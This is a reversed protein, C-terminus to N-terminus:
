IVVATNEEDSSGESDDGEEKGEQGFAADIELSLEKILKKNGEIQKAQYIAKLVCKGVNELDGISFHQGQLKGRNSGAFSAELTFVFPIKLQHFMTIRATSEKSKPMSFSCDQFNFYDFQKSLIHSFVKPPFLSDRLKPFVSTLNELKNGYQFVNKRNDNIIIM